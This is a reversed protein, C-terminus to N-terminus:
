VIKRAASADVPPEVVSVKKRTGYGIGHAASQPYRHGYTKELVAASMGLFGAAEWMDVGAQM